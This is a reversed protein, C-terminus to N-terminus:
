RRALAFGVLFAVALSKLPAARAAEALHHLWKNQTPPIPRFDDEAMHRIAESAQEIRQEPSAVVPSIDENAM